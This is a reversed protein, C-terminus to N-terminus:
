PEDEDDNLSAIVRRLRDLPTRPMGPGGGTPGGHSPPPHAAGQDESDSPAKATTYYGGDDRDDDDQTRALNLEAQALARGPRTLLRRVLEVDSRRVRGGANRTRLADLARGAEGLAEHSVGLARAAAALGRASALGRLHARAAEVDARANALASELRALQTRSPTAGAGLLRQLRADAEAVRGRAERTEGIARARAEVAGAGAGPTAPQGQRAVFAALAERARPSLQSASPSALFDRVLRERGAADSRAAIADLARQADGVTITHDRRSVGLAGRFLATLSRPTRTTRPM